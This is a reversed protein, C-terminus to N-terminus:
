TKKDQRLIGNQFIEARAQSIDVSSFSIVHKWIRMRFNESYWLASTTVLLIQTLYRSRSKVLHLSM